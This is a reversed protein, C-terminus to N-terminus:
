KVPKNLYAGFGTEQLRASDGRNGMSTMMVLSTDRISPDQKIIEGLEEGDMEPMMMDLIAIDYPLDDDYLPHVFVNSTTYTDNGVTFTGRTPGEIYVGCHGATLVHFPSILTGSCFDGYRQSGVTGVSPFEDTLDGAIIFPVIEQAASTSLLAPLLMMALAPVIYSKQM